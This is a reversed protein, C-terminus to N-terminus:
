MEERRLVERECKKLDKPDYKRTEAMGTIGSKLGRLM